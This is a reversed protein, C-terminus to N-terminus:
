NWSLGGLGPLLDEPARAFFPKASQQDLFAPLAALDLGNLLIQRITRARYDEFHLARACAREL